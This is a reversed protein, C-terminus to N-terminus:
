WGEALRDSLDNQHQQHQDQHAAPCPQDVRLHGLNQPGIHQQVPEDRRHKQEAHHGTEPLHQDKRLRHAPDLIEDAMHRAM